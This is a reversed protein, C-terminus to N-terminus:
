VMEMSMITKGELILAVAKDRMKEITERPLGVFLGEAAM